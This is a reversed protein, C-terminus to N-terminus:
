TQRRLDTVGKLIVLPRSLISNACPRALRGGWGWM